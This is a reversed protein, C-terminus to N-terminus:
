SRVDHDGDKGWKTRGLLWYLIPVVGLILAWGPSIHILPLLGMLVLILFLTTTALRILRIDSYTYWDHRARPKPLGRAVLRWVTRASVVYQKPSIEGIRILYPRGEEVEYDDAVRFFLGMVAPDSVFENMVNTTDVKHSSLCKLLFPRASFSPPLQGFPLEGYRIAYRQRTSLTGMAIRLLEKQERSLREYTNRVLDIILADQHVGRFVKGWEVEISPAGLTSYQYLYYFWAQAILPHGASERWVERTVYSPLVLVQSRLEEIEQIMFNKLFVPQALERKLDEVVRRYSPDMKADRSLRQYRDFLDPLPTKSTLLLHVRSASAQTLTLAYDLMVALSRPDIVRPSILVDIDDIALLLEGKLNGLLNGLQKGIEFFDGVRAPSADSWIRQIASLEGVLSTYLETPQQPFKELIRRLEELLLKGFLSTPGSSSSKTAEEVVTRCSVFALPLGIEKSLQYLFSSKGTKLQGIVQCVRHEDLVAEAQELETRRGVWGEYSLPETYDYPNRQRRTGGSMLPSEEQAAFGDKMSFQEGTMSVGGAGESQAM